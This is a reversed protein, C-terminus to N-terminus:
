RFYGVKKLLSYLEKARMIIKTNEPSRTENVREKVIRDQLERYEKDWKIIEDLTESM